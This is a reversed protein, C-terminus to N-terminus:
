VPGCAVHPKLAVFGRKGTFVNFTSAPLVSPKPRDDVPGYPFSSDSFVPSTPKGKRELNEYM